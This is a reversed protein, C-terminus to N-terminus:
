LLEKLEFLRTGNSGKVLIFRNTLMDSSAKVEEVDKFVRWEGNEVKGEKGVLWGASWEHESILKLIRAHEEESYEGLERMEGLILVKPLTSEMTAFNSIALSMSSPNANYADVILKNRGTEVLQSRNNTPVYEELAERILDDSVGFHRGVTVAARINQENYGGVLHTSVEFSDVYECVGESCGRAKLMDSLVEYHSDVFIVIVKTKVGETETGQGEAETQKFYDYLEGKTRKVGEYGGFGELHARGVNTILGCTPEATEVLTKIDGPHSAGMEIVAIEHEPRLRLLTKPVGVDNNYNGETYLVNYKKKLVSAILEKTTTKGNTGTIAIVPIDFQRRWERAINKYEQLADAVLVMGENDAVVGGGEAMVGGSETGVAFNM